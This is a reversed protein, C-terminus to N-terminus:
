LVPHGEEYGTKVYVHGGKNNYRIANDCLNYLLEEMMQKNANVKCPGGELALTVMRNAASVQLMEVSIEALVYLDLEETEMEKGADLESLRIIDNILSLLRNASKHINAAFHIIDESEAMGNEILESYGSIATLPTKLEHSVNATFEQRMNANKIIAEHQEKITKIFPRLEEYTNVEELNDLNRGVEEIPNVIGKMLFRAWILCFVVMGAVVLIVVPLASTYISWISHSERSVRLVNGNELLLAYYYTNQQLTDSQRISYGEGTERAEKIEPRGSHDDMSTSDAITDHLVRGKEDVLTIRINGEMDFSGADGPNKELMSGSAQLLRAETKLDTMIQTQFLRYFVAVVLIISIIMTLLAISMMHKGIKQKM